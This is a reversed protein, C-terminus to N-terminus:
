FKADSTGDRMRRNCDVQKLSVDDRKNFGQTEPEM